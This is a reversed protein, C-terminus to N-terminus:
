GTSNIQSFRRVATNFILLAVAYRKWGMEQDASVGTIRYLGREVPGMLRTAWFRDGSYVRHMYRGLPLALLITLGLVAATLTITSIM